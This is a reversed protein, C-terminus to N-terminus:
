AGASQRAHVTGGKALVIKTQQIDIDEMAKRSNPWTEKVHRNDAFLHWRGIVNVLQFETKNWKAYFGRDNRKWEMIM